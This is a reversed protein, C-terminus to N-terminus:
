VGTDEQPQHQRTSLVKNMRTDRDVIFWAKCASRHYWWETQVGRVNPKNYLYATWTEDDASPDPRTQVPGAYHFEWVPRRGCNPCDIQFSM